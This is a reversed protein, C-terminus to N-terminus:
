RHITMLNLIHLFGDLPFERAQECLLHNRKVVIGAGFLRCYLSVGPAIESPMDSRDVMFDLGQVEHSGCNLVM